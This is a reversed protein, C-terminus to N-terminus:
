ASRYDFDAEYACNGELRWAFPDDDVTLQESILEHGAREYGPVICAVSADTEFRRTARVTATEGVRLRYGDGDPALEIPSARVAVLHSAKRIWPLRSVHPGGHAGLLVDALAARQREDGGADVHLTLTWPSRPEDDDYEYVLAAALGGVDVEGVRGEAVHWSLVGHCVGHTSRGGPVGAITRCPCIAECNCSEFYSGRLRYSLQDV